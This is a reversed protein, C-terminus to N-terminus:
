NEDKWKQWDELFEIWKDAYAPDMKFVEMLERAKQRQEEIAAKGEEVCGEIITYTFNGDSYKEM